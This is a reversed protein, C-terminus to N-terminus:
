SRLTKLAYTRRRSNQWFARVDPEMKAELEPPNGSPLLVVELWDPTEGQVGNPAGSMSNAVVVFDQGRVLEQQELRTLWESLYYSGGMVCLM